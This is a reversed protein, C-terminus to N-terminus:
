AAFVNFAISIRPRTVDTPWTRHPLYAPFLLLLGPKPELVWDVDDKARLTAVPAKRFGIAGAPRNAGESQPPIDVYYVGSLWALAHDHWSEHGDGRMVLAWSVLSMSEPRAQIMPHGPFNERETLYTEIEHKLATHFRVAHDGEFAQFNDIRRTDGRTSVYPHSPRLNETELIERKLGENWSTGLNKESYWIATDFFSSLEKSLGLAAAAQAQVAMVQGNRVGQKWLDLCRAHVDKARERAFLVSAYVRLCRPDSPEIELGRTAADLAEDDRTLAELARALEGHAGAVRRRAAVDLHSIARKLKGLTALARGLHFELRPDGDTYRVLPELMAVIEELADANFLAQALTLRLNIADPQQAVAARLPALMKAPALLTGPQVTKWKFEM